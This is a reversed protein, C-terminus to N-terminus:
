FFACTDSKKIISMSAAELRCGEPESSWGARDDDCSKVGDNGRHIQRKVIHVSSGRM